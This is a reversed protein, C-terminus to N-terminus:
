LGMPRTSGPQDISIHEQVCLSFNKKYVPSDGEWLIRDHTYHLWHIKTDYVQTLQGSIKEKKLLNYEKKTLETIEKKDSIFYYRLYAIRYELHSVLVRKNQSDYFEFSDAQVVDQDLYGLSHDSHKGLGELGDTFIEEMDKIHKPYRIHFDEATIWKEYIIYRADSLNSKRCMPDVLVEYGELSFEYFQLEEPNAPDPGVDVVVDGVGTILENEFLTKHEDAADLQSTDIYKVIDELVECLFDDSKEVPYPYIRVPNQSEIGVALEVTPHIYNWVLAERGQQELKFKEDDSWQDGAKFKQALQASELWELNATWAEDRMEKAVTLRDEKSLETFSTYWGAM